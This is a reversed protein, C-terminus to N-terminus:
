CEIHAGVLKTISSSGWQNAVTLTVTYFGPSSYGHVPNCYTSTTGDGFNWYWSTPEGTSTDTFEVENYSTNTLDNYQFNAVPKTGAAAMGATLFAITLFLCMGLTIRYFAKM